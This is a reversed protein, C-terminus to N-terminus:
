LKEQFRKRAPQMIDADDYNVFRGSFSPPAQTALWVISRAPIWPPELRGEVKLSQYYAATEPPMALPGKKRLFAQMPTDVVGPRVAIATIEKEEAALVRTFHNLGAKAV